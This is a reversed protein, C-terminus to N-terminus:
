INMYMVFHLQVDRILYKGKINTKRVNDANEAKKNITESFPFKTEKRGASSSSEKRSTWETRPPVGKRGSWSDRITQQLHKNTFVRAKGKKNRLPKTRSYTMTLHYIVIFLVCFTVVTTISKLRAMTTVEVNTDM